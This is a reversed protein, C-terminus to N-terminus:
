REDRASFPPFVAGPPEREREGELLSPSFLSLMFPSSLNTEEFLTLSLSTTIRTQEERSLSRATSREIGERPEREGELYRERLLFM